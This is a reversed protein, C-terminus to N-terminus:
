YFDSPNVDILKADKKTKYDPDLSKHWEIHIDMGQMRVLSGCTLCQLMLEGEMWRFWIYDDPISKM